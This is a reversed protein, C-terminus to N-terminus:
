PSRPGVLGPLGAALLLRAILRHGQASPHDGDDALLPTVPGNRGGDFAGELDVYTARSRSAAVAIATNARATLTRTATVGAPPYDQEAVAGDEFVNWYGTVLVATRQGLRLERIRGLVARMTPGLDRLDAATCGSASSVDCSGNVVADYQDAFDNAGITVLVVDAAQVARAVSSRPDDLASLLQASTQGGVGENDVRVPVHRQQMLLRAYDLSFADCSCDSGATVSDGVAAVTLGPSVGSAGVGSQAHRILTRPELQQFAPAHDFAQVQPVLLAAGALALVLVALAGAFALLRRSRTPRSSM